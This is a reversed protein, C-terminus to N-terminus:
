SCARKVRAINDGRRCIPVSTRWSTALRGTLASPFSRRKHEATICNIIANDKCISNSTSINNCLLNFTFHRWPSPLWIWALHMLVFGVSQIFVGAL